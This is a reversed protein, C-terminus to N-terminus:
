IIRFLRKFWSKIKHKKREIVGAKVVREGKLVATIDEGMEGCLQEKMDQQVSMVAMKNMNLDGQLGRMERQLVFDAM